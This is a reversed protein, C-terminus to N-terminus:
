RPDSPSPQCGEITRNWRDAPPLLLAAIASVGATREEALTAKPTPEGKQEEKKQEEPSKFEPIEQQSPLREGESFSFSVPELKTPTGTSPTVPTSATPAPKPEEKPSAKPAEVGKHKQKCISKHGFFRPGDEWKAEGCYPCVPNTM